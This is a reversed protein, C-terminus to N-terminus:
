PQLVRKQTDAHRCMVDVHDNCALDVFALKGMLELCLRCLHNQTTASASACTWMWWLLDSSAFCLFLFMEFKIGGVLMARARKLAEEQSQVLQQLQATPLVDLNTGLAPNARVMEHQLRAEVQAVHQHNGRLKRELGEIYNKCQAMQLGIAANMYLAAACGSRVRMSDDHMIGSHYGSIKCLMAM